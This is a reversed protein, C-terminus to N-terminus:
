SRVTEAMAPRWTALKAISRAQWDDQAPDAEPEAMAIALAEALEVRAAEWVPATDVGEARLRAEAVLVCDGFRARLEPGVYSNDDHEGHGALRLLTALVFQPGGGSRAAAVANEVTTRCADFDTGDCEHGAMGYGVARDILSRCAYTRDSFTSYSVQNDAVLVVLPLREVAVVNLGEHLAGTQMGGDGINVLGISTHGPKLQRRAMLAGAVVAISSGLHSIMPFEGRVLCGRHINGERGRMLGAARGMYTRFSELMTEGFALRGATDRILPTYFDGRDGLRGIQLALAGAASYAEQGKGSFVSGGKIHGQKYLSALREDLVRGRVMQRFHEIRDIV